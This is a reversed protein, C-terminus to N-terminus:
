MLIDINDLASEVAHQDELNVELSSLNSKPPLSSINSGPRYLIKVPAGSAALAEVIASSVWGRHGYIAIKNFTM